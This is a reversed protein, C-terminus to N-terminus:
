ISSDEEHGAHKGHGKKQKDLGVCQKHHLENNEKQKTGDSLVRAEAQAAKFVREKFTRELTLGKEQLVCKETIQDHLKDAKLAGFDCSRSLESLTNM